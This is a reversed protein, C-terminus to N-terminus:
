SVAKRLRAVYEALIATLLLCFRADAPTPPAPTQEPHHFANTMDAYGKWISDLMKVHWDQEPWHLQGALVQAVHMNKTAGLIDEWATQIGRCAAICAKYRGADYERRAEDFQAVLIGVDPMQSLDVEVLRIHDYGLGPLVKDVWTSPEIEARLPGIFTDWFPLLESFYGANSLRGEKRHDTNRCWAIIGELGLFLVLRGGSAAHRADELLKVQEHTLHFRLEFGSTIPGDSATCCPMHEILDLSVTPGLRNAPSAPDNRFLSGTVRVLALQQEVPRQLLVVQVPIVLRPDLWGGEGRIQSPDLNVEGVSLGTGVGLWIKSPAIM